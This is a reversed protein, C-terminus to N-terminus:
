DDELVITCNNFCCSEYDLNDTQITRLSSFPVFYDCRCCEGDESEVQCDTFRCNVIETVDSKKGFVSLIVYGDEGLATITDFDCNEVQGSSDITLLPGTSCCQKFTCGSFDSYHGTVSDVNKFTCGNMECNSATIEHCDEFTCNNFAAEGVCLHYFNKFTIGESIPGINYHIEGNVDESSVGNALAFEKDNKYDLIM